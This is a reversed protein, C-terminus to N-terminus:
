LFIDVIRRERTYSSLSVPIGVPQLAIQRHFGRPPPGRSPFVRSAPALTATKSATVSTEQELHSLFKKKQLKRENSKM